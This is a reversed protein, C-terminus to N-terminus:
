TQMSDSSTTNVGVGGFRPLIVEFQGDQAVAASQREIRSISISSATRFGVCCRLLAPFLSPWKWRCAGANDHLGHSHLKLRKNVLRFTYM